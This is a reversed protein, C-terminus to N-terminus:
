RPPRQTGIVRASMALLNLLVWAQVELIKSGVGEGLLIEKAVIRHIGPLREGIALGASPGNAGATKEALLRVRFHKTACGMRVTDALVTNRHYKTPAVPISGTVRQNLTM